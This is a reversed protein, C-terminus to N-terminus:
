RILMAILVLPGALLLLAWALYAFFSPMVIGRDEAIARVMFNPANGVYTLAGFYVAGMSIAGLTWALPGMLTAADGGALNFFVLYTPANDLFASLIGTTLFVMANDPTGDPGTVLAVIPALAGHTGAQLIAIVPIITVFIAGFLKAVEIIPGWHFVNRTRLTKPTIWLSLGALLLLGADRVLNQLELPTGYVEFTIGPKWLGSSLVLGIVAALLLLNVAGEIHFPESIPPQKTTDRGWLWSDLVFFVLLLFACLAVTPLLLRNTTWFFSVGKLFGIFLPPDGLPSLAGGINGVLLIFFVVVHVRDARRETAAILPRVLLMAAGTTGMVSALAAGAALLRTNRFPTGALPGRLLIGGAITYLVALVIVFPLYELLLAHVVHHLMTDAGFVVGFPVMWALATVLAIGGYHRHWFTNAFIPLLAIALLMAAFPLGWALSLTAGDIAPFASDPSAALALTPLLALSM